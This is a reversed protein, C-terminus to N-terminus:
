EQSIHPDGGISDPKTTLGRQILEEKLLEIFSTELEYQIAKQYASLLFEDSLLKYSAM